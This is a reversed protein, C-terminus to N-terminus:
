ICFMKFKVCSLKSTNDEHSDSPWRIAIVAYSHDDSISTTIDMHDMYFAKKLQTLCIFVLNADVCDVFSIDWLM